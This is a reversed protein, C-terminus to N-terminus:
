YSLEHLYRWHIHPRAIAISYFTSIILVRTKPYNVFDSVRQSDTSYRGAKCVPNEAGFLAANKLNDFGFRHMVGFDFRARYHNTQCRQRFNKVSLRPFDFRM